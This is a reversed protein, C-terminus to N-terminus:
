EKEGMSHWTKLETLVEKVEALVDLISQNFKWDKVLFYAMLVAAFGTNDLFDVIQAIDM